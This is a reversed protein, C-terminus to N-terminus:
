FVPTTPPAKKKKKKKEFSVGCSGYVRTSGVVFLFSSGWDVSTEKAESFPYIHQLHSKGSAGFSLARARKAFSLFHGRGTKHHFLIGFSGVVHSWYLLIYFATCFCSIQSCHDNSASCGAYIRRRTRM